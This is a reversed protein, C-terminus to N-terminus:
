SDLIGNEPRYISLTTFSCKLYISMDYVLQRIYTGSSVVAEMEFVQIELATKLKDKQKKWNEIIESKRFGNEDDELLELENIIQNILEKSEIFEVNNLKLSKIEVNKKPINIESLRNNKTWWWLPQRLGENNKVCISSYNPYKQKYKYSNFYKICDNLEKPNIIKLNNAIAPNGLTDLSDTYFNTFFKFKYKKDKKTFENLRKCSDKGVLIIVEGSAMPDLRNAFALQSEKINYKNRTEKLLKGMTIGKRKFVRKIELM